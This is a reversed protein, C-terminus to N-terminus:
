KTVPLTRRRRPPIDRDLRGLWNANTVHVDTVGFQGTQTARPPAEADPNLLEADVLESDELSDELRSKPINVSMSIPIM